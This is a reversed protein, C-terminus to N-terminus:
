APKFIMLYLIVALTAFGIAATAISRRSTLLAELEEDSTRPVGSPRMATAERVRKYYPTAIATMLGISAVLLVISLWIWLQKWYQFKIADALGGVFLLVISVYLPVVTSGSLQLLNDIRERDREKRLRFLAVMSVGHSGLMGLVGALHIFVWWRYDM